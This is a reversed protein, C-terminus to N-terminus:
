HAKEVMRLLCAHRGFRRQGVDNGSFVSRVPADPPLAARVVGCCGPAANELKPLLGMCGVVSRRYKAQEKCARPFLIGRFRARPVKGDRSAESRWLGVNPGLPARSPRHAGAPAIITGGAC